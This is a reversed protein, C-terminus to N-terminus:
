EKDRQALRTGTQFGGAEWCQGEFKWVWFFIGWEVYTLLALGLRTKGQCKIKIGIRMSRDYEDCSGCGFLM